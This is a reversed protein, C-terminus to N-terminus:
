RILQYNLVALGWFALIELGNTSAGRARQSKAFVDAPLKAQAREWGPRPNANNLFVKNGALLSLAYGHATISIGWTAIISAFSYNYAM